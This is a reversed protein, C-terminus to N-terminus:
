RHTEQILGANGGGRSGPAWQAQPGPADARGRPHFGQSHPSQPSMPLACPLVTHLQAPVMAECGGRPGAWVKLSLSILHHM